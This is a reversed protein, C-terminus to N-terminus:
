FLSPDSLGGSVAGSINGYFGWFVYPIDKKKVSAVFKSYAINKAENDANDMQEYKVYMPYTALLMNGWKEVKEQFLKKRGEDKVFSSYSSFTQIGAMLFDRNEPNNFILSEVILLYAPAGDEILRMDNQQMVGGILSETVGKIMTSCSLSTMAILTVIFMKVIKSM